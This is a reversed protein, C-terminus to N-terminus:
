PNSRWHGIWETVQQLVTRTWPEKRGMHLQLVTNTCRGQTPVGVMDAAQARARRVEKPSMGTAAVHYHSKAHINTHYLKPGFKKAFLLSRRMSAQAKTQRAKATALARRRGLSTDIGLDKVVSSTKIKQGRMWLQDQLWGAICRTNSVATTKDSVELEASRLGALM